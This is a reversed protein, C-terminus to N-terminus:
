CSTGQYFNPIARKSNKKISYLTKVIALPAVVRTDLAILETGHEKFPKGTEEFCIKLAVCPNLINKQYSLNQEHHGEM